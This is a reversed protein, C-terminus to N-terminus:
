THKTQKAMCTLIKVYKVVFSASMKEHFVQLIDKVVSLTPHSFITGNFCKFKEKMSISNCVINNSIM